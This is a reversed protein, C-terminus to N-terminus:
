EMLLRREITMALTTKNIGLERAPALKKWQNREPAERIVRAEMEALTSVFRVIRASCTCQRLLDRLHGLEVFGGHCLIFAHEIANELERINGPWDYEMFAGLAEKSVDTIDKGKISNLRDIFHQSLIQSVAASNDRLKSRGGVIAYAKSDECVGALDPLVGKCGVQLCAVHM